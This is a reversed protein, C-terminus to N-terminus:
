ALPRGRTILPHPRAPDDYGRRCVQCYWGYTDNRLPTRRNHGDRCVACYRLPSTSDIYTGTSEDFSLSSVHESQSKGKSQEWQKRLASPQADQGDPQEGLAAKLKTELHEIYSAEDRQNKEALAIAEEADPPLQGGSVALIERLKKLSM